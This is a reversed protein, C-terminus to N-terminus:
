DERPPPRGPNGPKRPGSPPKSRPPKRRQPNPHASTPRPANPRPTNSRPSNLPPAKPHPAKPRSPRPGSARDRPPHRPPRVRAPTEAPEATKKVGFREVLIRRGMRDTLLGARKDPRPEDAILLEERRSGRYHRRLPADDKRWAHGRRPRPKEERAGSTAFGGGGGAGASTGPGGAPRDARKGKPSAHRRGGPLQRTGDHMDREGRRSHADRPQPRDDTDRPKRNERRERAPRERAAAPREIAPASFDCGALAIISEGLERRLMATPIEEIAGPALDGLRFPGFAIRILRSVQLGLHALVNRVERNKGERIAFALWANSGQERELTAEIPGYHIGDIIVGDRLRDLDPQSVRGHARVRYRRVWQTRPLELVRALGGDNTLLLLGETGIDLRGISVLRPLDAPLTDFLTPRGQPDANTSVLGAPKHYLFLRTRQRRPLPKGDVMIRDHATVTVSPSTITAGNVAVRGAAIFAEADRRSCLGARAMAKAIREKAVHSQAVPSKAIPSQAIPQRPQRAIRKGPKHQAGRGGTGAAEQAPSPAPPGGGRRQEQPDHDGM